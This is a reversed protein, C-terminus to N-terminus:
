SSCVYLASQQCTLLWHVQEVWNYDQAYTYILFNFCFMYSLIASYHIKNIHLLFLEIEAYQM